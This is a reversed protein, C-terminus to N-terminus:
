NKKGNQTKVEQSLENILSKIVIHDFYVDYEDIDLDDSKTDSYTATDGEEFFVQQRLKLSQYLEERSEAVKLCYNRSEVYFQIQPRYKTYVEELLESKKTALTTLNIQHDSLQIKESTEVSSTM